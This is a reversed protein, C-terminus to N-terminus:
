IPGWFLHDMQLVDKTFLETNGSKLVTINEAKYDKFINLINKECLAAQSGLDFTHFYLITIKSLDGKFREKVSRNTIGIKWYVGNKDSIRLYYLNGPKSYDFGGGIAPHCDMCSRGALLNGTSCRWKGGCVNCQCDINLLNNKYEGSVTIDRETADLRNQIIELTLPLTNACRPCGNKMFSSPSCKWSYNCVECEIDLKTRTNKYDEETSKILLKKGSFDLSDQLTAVTWKIKRNCSPCGNKILNSPLSEWQYECILCKSNLKFDSGRYEGSLLFKKDLANLKNQYLQLGNELFKM